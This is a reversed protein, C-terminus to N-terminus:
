DAFNLGEFVESSNRGTGKILLNDQVEFWGKLDNPGEIECWGENDTRTIIAFSGEQLNGAIKTKGPDELLTLSTKLKVLTNMRYYQQPISELGHKRNLKYQETYFWTHLIHGRTKSSFIGSGDIKLAYPGGQVRGMFQLRRGDYFYFYSAEDSSPGSETIVLELYKDRADIDSVYLAGDLNDGQGEIWIGNVGLRYSSAGPQCILSIEDAKGDSNLDVQTSNGEIKKFHEKLSEEYDKLFSINKKETNSLVDETYAPDEHYWTKSAFYSKMWEDAFRYGHRAYIENWAIEINAAYLDLVDGEGLVHKDSQPLIYDAWQAYSDKYEILNGEKYLYYHPEGTKGAELWHGTGSSKVFAYENHTVAAIDMGEYQTGNWRFLLVFPPLSGRSESLIEKTGDGDLDVEYAYNTKLLLQWTKKDSNYAIIQTEFAAAGTNGRIVLENKGDNNMDEQLVELQELGYSSVLGLAWRKGQAELFATVEGSKENGGYLSVNARQGNIDELGIKKLQKLGKILEAKRLEVVPEKTYIGPYVGDGEVVKSPEEQRPIPEQVVEAPDKSCGGLSFILLGALLIAIIKKM